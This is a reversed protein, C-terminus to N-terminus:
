KYHTVRLKLGDNKLYKPQLDAHSFHCGKGTDACDGLLIRSTVCARTHDDFNLTERIHGKDGERNLLQITFGGRFPWKLQDDFEGKILYIFASIHTGKRKQFGNADVFLGMKYGKHQTYFPPSFWRDSDKKHKEFNNIVFEVPCISTEIQVDTLDQTLKSIQKGQQETEQEIASVKENLQERDEQYTAM